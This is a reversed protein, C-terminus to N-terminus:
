HPPQPEKKPAKEADIRAQTSEVLRKLWNHENILHSMQSDSYDVTGMPQKDATLKDLEAKARELQRILNRNTAELEAANIKIGLYPSAHMLNIDFSERGNRTIAARLLKPDADKKFTMVSIDFMVGNFIGDFLGGLQPVPKDASYPIDEPKSWPVSSGAEVVAFTNHCGDPFDDPYRLRRGDQFGAGAGTFVQYYTAYPPSIPKGPSAYVPPMRSLLPKNHPSDWPEDLHFEEYLDSEELYPLIL